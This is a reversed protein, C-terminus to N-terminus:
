AKVLVKLVSSVEHYLKVDVTFEGVTKITTNVSIKKKDIVLNFDERLKDSIDKSTVAGYLRGDSGGTTHFELTIEDLKKKLELANKRDEAERFAAADAKNKLETMVQADAEKALHRPFLYNKAYGDSVNILDGKKGQSKVDQLLIVKM